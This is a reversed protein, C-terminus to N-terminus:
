AAASAEDNWREGHSSRTGSAVPMSIARLSGAMTVSKQATTKAQTAISRACGSRTARTAPTDESSKMDPKLPTSMDHKPGVARGVPGCSSNM